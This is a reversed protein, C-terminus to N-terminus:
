SYCIHCGPACISEGNLTGCNDYCGPCVDGTNANPQYKDSCFRCTDIHRPCFYLTTTKDYQTVNLQTLRTVCTNADCEHCREQRDRCVGRQLRCCRQLRHVGCHEDTRTTINQCGFTVCSRQTQLFGAGVRAETVREPKTAM